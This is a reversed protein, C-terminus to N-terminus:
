PEIGKSLAADQMRGKVLFVRGEQLEAEAITVTKEKLQPHALVLEVPGVELSEVVLPTATQPLKVDKGACRLARVEAYPEVFVKLTFTGRQAALAKAETRIRGAEESAARLSGVGQAAALLTECWAATRDLRARREARTGTTDKQTEGAARVQERVWDTAGIADPAAAEDAMRALVGQAKAPLAADGPKWTAFALPAQLATWAERWAQQTKAAKEEATPGAPPAPTAPDPPKIPAADPKPGPPTPVPRSSPWFLAAALGGVVVLAAAALVPARRGKGPTGPARATVAANDLFRQLDDALEGASAYRDEKAKAMAKLIIRELPEPIEPNAARPPDPAENVVKMVIDMASEGTFPAKKCLVAYITAGLSYVDSQADVASLRGQAQEPPMFAPTGMVAGSVSLSSETQLSKALGFDMVYPWRDSTLMVNAPKLDRHIVGAKHAAEVGRAVKVFIEVADRLALQVAAMSQGDIFEMALYSRPPQGPHLPPAEGVEYIPAINPHRLRAALKAERQFRAIDEDETALLFKIAVWRTLKRDWAKWVTGMGGRGIQLVLIYQNLQRSPDADLPRAEAPLEDLRNSSAHAKRSAAAGASIGAAPCGVHTEGTYTGGCAGCRRTTAELGSDGPTFDGGSADAM